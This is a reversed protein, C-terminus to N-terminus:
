LLCEWTFADNSSNWYDPRCGVCEPSAAGVTAGTVKEEALAASLGQDHLAGRFAPPHKPFSDSTLCQKSSESPQKSFFDSECLTQSKGLLARGAWYWSWPLILSKSQLPGLLRQSKPAWMSKGQIQEYRGFQSHCELAEWGLVLVVAPDAIKVPTAGVLVTIKTGM